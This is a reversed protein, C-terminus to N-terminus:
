TPATPGTVTVGAVSAAGPAALSFALLGATLLVLTRRV